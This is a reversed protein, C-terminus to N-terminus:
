PKVLAKVPPEVLARTHVQSPSHCSKNASSLGNASSLSQEPLPKFIASHGLRKKQCRHLAKLEKWLTDNSPCLAAFTQNTANMM